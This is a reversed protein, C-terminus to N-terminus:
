VLTRAIRIRDPMKPISTRQNWAVYPSVRTSNTTSVIIFYSTELRLSKSTKLM